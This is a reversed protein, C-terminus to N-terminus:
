KSLLEVKAKLAANEKELRIMHLTLEEVKELLKNSMASVSVGNEAMEAASPIGPLHKNEKVFAEVESLPKLDYDEDFVYDAANNMNVNIDDTKINSANLAVVNLEEKCTIKGNVVMDGKDINFSSAKFTIGYYKEADPKTSGPYSSTNFMWVGTSDIFKCALRPKYPHNTASAVLEMSVAKTHGDKDVSFIQTYANKIMDYCEIAYDYVRVIKTGGKDLQKKPINVRLASLSTEGSVKMDEGVSVEKSFYTNNGWFSADGEVRLTSDLVVPGEVNLDELTEANVSTSVLAMGVVFPLFKLNM